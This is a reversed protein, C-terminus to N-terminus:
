ENDIEKKIERLKDPVTDMLQEVTSLSIRQITDTLRFIIFEERKRQRIEALLHCEFVAGFTIIIALIAILFILSYIEPGM